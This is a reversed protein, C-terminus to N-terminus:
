FVKFLSTCCFPAIIKFLAIEMIRKAMQIALFFLLFVTVFAFITLMFINLSYLYTDGIGLVGGTTANIDVTKWNAVFYEKDEPATENDNIMVSILATSITSENESTGMGSVEIVADTLATSFSHGFQFLPNILFIMTITIVVGKFIKLPSGRDDNKIIYNIILELVVKLVLWSTAVIIAGSFVKNIYENDFFKYRWIGDIIGFLGDLLLLVEKAISWMISRFADLLWFQKVRSVDALITISM